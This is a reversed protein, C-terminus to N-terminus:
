LWTWYRRHRIPEEVHQPMNRSYSSAVHRVARHRAAGREQIMYSCLKFVYAKRKEPFKTM